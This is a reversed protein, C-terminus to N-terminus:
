RFKKRWREWWPLVPGYGERYRLLRAPNGGVIAFPPVDRTVVSGAGVVAGRGIRVGPLVTAGGGIWAGSEVVIPAGTLPNKWIVPDGGDIGHGASLLRAHPGVIVDDALSLGGEGSLYCGVNVIVRNGLDLRTDDEGMLLRVQELLLVDNGLFIGANAHRNLTRYVTVSSAILCGTGCFDIGPFSDVPLPLGISQSTPMTCLPAGSVSFAIAM